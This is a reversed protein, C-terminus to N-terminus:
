KEAEAPDDPVVSRAILKGGLKFWALTVERNWALQELQLERM